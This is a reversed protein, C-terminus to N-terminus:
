FLLFHFYWLYMGHEREAYLSPLILDICGIKMCLYLLGEWAFILLELMKLGLKTLSKDEFEQGPLCYM